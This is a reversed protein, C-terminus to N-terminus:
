LMCKLHKLKSIDCWMDFNGEHSEILNLVFSYFSKCFFAFFSLM